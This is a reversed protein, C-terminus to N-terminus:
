RGMAQRTGTASRTHRGGPHKRLRTRRPRGPGTPDTTTAAPSQDAGYPDAESPTATPGHQQPHGHAPTDPASPDPPTPGGGPTASSVPAPSDYAPLPSSQDTPGATPTGSSTIAAASSSPASADTSSPVAPDPWDIDLQPTTSDDTTAAASTAAAPAVSVVPRRRRGPDRLGGRRRHRDGRGRRDGATRRCRSRHAAVCKPCRPRLHRAIPRARRHDRHRTDLGAAGLRDCGRGAAGRERRHGSVRPRRRRIPCWRRGRPRQMQAAGTVADVVATVLDGPGPLAMALVVLAALCCLLKAWAARM